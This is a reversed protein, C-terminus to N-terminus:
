PLSDLIIAKIEFTNMNNVRQNFFIVSIIVSKSMDYCTNDLGSCVSLQINHKEVIRRAVFNGAFCGNELLGEM